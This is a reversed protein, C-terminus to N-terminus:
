DVGRILKLAEEAEWPFTEALDGHEKYSVARELADVAVRLKNHLERIVDGVQTEVIGSHGDYVAHTVDKEFQKLCGYDSEVNRLKEALADREKGAADLLGATEVLISNGRLVTAQLADREREAKEARETLQRIQERPSHQACHKLMHTAQNPCDDCERM